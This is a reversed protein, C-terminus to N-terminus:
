KKIINSFNYREKELRIYSKCMLFTTLTRHVLLQIKEIEPNKNVIHMFYQNFSKCTKLYDKEAFFTCNKIKSQVIQPLFSNINNSSSIIILNDHKDLVISLLFINEKSIFIISHDYIVIFYPDNCENMINILMIKPGNNTDSNIVKELEQLDSKKIVIIKFKNIFSNFNWNSVKNESENFQKIYEFISQNM